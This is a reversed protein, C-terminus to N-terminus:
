LDLILRVPMTHGRLRIVSSAEIALELVGTMDMEVSKSLQAEAEEAKIKALDSPRPTPVIPQPPSTFAPSSLASSPHPPPSTFAPVSPISTPKPSAAATTAVPAPPVPPVISSSARLAAPSISRNKDANIKVVELGKDEPAPAPSGGVPSVDMTVDEGTEVLGEVASTKKKDGSAVRARKGTAGSEDSGARGKRKGAVVEKGKGKDKVPPPDIGNSPNPTPPASVPPTSHKPLPPLPLANPISYGVLRPAPEM